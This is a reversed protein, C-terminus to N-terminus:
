DLRLRVFPADTMLRSRNDKPLAKMVVPQSVPKMTRYEGKEYFLQTAQFGFVLPLTGEYTLKWAAAADKSVKVEAGVGQQVVPVDLELSTNDSKRAEVTFKKSKITATTIYVADAELLQGVYRSFPNVDAAALFKDLETLPVSEALVEHFEFTLTHAKEYRGKLGLRSGGLAAVINGLLTLGLGLKLDGTRKGSLEPSPQPPSIDPLKVAGAEFVSALDGLRELDVDGQALIQLPRVDAKPMRIALYGQEKLLNAFPDPCWAM